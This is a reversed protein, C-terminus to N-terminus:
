LIIKLREEKEKELGKIVTNAERNRFMTHYSDNKKELFDGIRVKAVGIDETVEYIENYVNELFDLDFLTIMEYGKKIRNSYSEKDVVFYLTSEFGMNIGFISFGHRGIEYHVISYLIDVLDTEYIEEKEGIGKWNIDIIDPDLEYRKLLERFGETYGTEGIKYLYGRSYKSMYHYYFDGYTSIKEKEDDSSFYKEIAEEPSIFYERRAGMYKLLEEGTLIEAAFDDLGNYIEMEKWNYSRKNDM